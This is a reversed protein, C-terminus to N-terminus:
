SRDERSRDSEKKPKEILAAAYRKLWEAYALAERTRRRYQGADGAMIENLLGVTTTEKGQTLFKALEGGITGHM